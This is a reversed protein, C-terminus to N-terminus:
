FCSHKATLKHLHYINRAHIIQVISNSYLKETNNVSFNM